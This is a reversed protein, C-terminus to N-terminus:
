FVHGGIDRDWGDNPLRGAREVMCKDSMSQFVQGLGPM